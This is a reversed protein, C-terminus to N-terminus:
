PVSYTAQLNGNDDLLTVMEGTEWIAQGANWYLAVVTDVGRDSYIDVAGSGFLTIQPFVYSNGDEDLLRWGTLSLTGDSLGRLQVRESDLDGASVVAVIGVQNGVSTDSVGESSSPDFAPVFITAGAGISDPDSLGNLALLEELTIDYTLAIEGLTEGSSIQYAMLASTATAKQEVEVLTGQTETPIVILSSPSDSIDATTQHSRDWLTLVVLTTIASVIINLILFYFLRKLHM